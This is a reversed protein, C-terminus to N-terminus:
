GPGPFAGLGGTAAAPKPRRGVSPGRAPAPQAAAANERSGAEQAQSGLPGKQPGLDRIWIRSLSLRQEWSPLGGCRSSSLGDDRPPLLGDPAGLHGGAPLRAALGSQLRGRSVAEGAAKRVPRGLNWLPQTERTGGGLSIESFGDLLRFTSTDMTSTYLSSMKSRRALSRRGATDPGGHSAGIVLAVFRSIDGGVRAHTSLRPRAERLPRCSGWFGSYTWHTPWVPM